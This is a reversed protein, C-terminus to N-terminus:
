ESYEDSGGLIQRVQTIADPNLDELVQIFNKSILGTTRRILLPVPSSPEHREFYKAVRELMRIADERSTIEGTIATPGGATGQGGESGEGGDADGAAAPDEIDAYDVFVKGVKYLLDSLGKLDPSYAAGVEDDFRAEIQSVFERAALIANYVGRNTEVGVSEFAGSIAAMTPAAADTEEAGEAPEADSATPELEGTAIEVDRYSFVGVVPSRVIPARRLANLVTAVDALSVVTNTRTPPLGDELPELEPHLPEWLSEVLNLIWRAGLALGAFSHEALLARTVWVALRLDRTREAVPAFAQLLDRWEQQDVHRELTQFEPDYELNDGTPADDSIPAALGDFDIGLETQLEDLITTDTAM